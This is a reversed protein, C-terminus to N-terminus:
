NEKVGLPWRSRANMSLDLMGEGRRLPGLAARAVMAANDTCLSPKPFLVELGEEKARAWFHERLRRNCAVGGVVVLKGLKCKKAARLTKEVLVEVVAEQFSAALDAVAGKSLPLFASERLYTLVSTKLGSFSFDLGQGKSMARPFRMAKPDGELAVRDIVPGGPYGLGLLKAVKDFAEGAADDRTQGLLSFSEEGTVHYLATHGGSVVLAVFPPRLEPDQLYAAAIHGALHHVGVLPLKRAYALAKAVGLGILLSGVLGPGQTVAIAEVEHIGRNAKELAERIVPLVWEMHKRSAIEPVVGGFPRHVEVQSSVVNSLVDRDGWLLACSTEDCSTEIGLVLMKEESVKDQGAEL